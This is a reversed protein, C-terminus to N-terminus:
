AASKNGFVRNIAGDWVNASVAGPSLTTSTDNAEIDSGNNGELAARMEACAGEDPDTHAAPAPESAALVEIIDEASLADKGLLKTAQAERGAFHESSIVAICRAREDARAAAVPDAAKEDGMYEDKKKGKPEKGAEAEDAEAEDAEAEAEDEEPMVDKAAPKLSDARAAARLGAYPATTM